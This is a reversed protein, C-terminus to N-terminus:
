FVPFDTPSVYKVTLFLYSLREYTIRCFAASLRINPAKLLWAPKETEAYVSRHPKKREM